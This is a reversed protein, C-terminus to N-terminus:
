QCICSNNTLNTDRISCVITGPPSQLSATGQNIGRDVKILVRRNTNNHQVTVLNGKVTVTGIGTYANGGCCFRYQGTTTNVLVVKTPNSDDQVCLDFTTVNFSCTATNGSADTATCTVTTVGVPFCSGSAPACVFTAGPCNDTVVPAPYNVVACPDGMTPPVVVVNTPCVIVPAQTDMVTVTFSCTATNGSTDTATATVTTVGVPFTSGSPPIAVVTVGPCNDTATVM